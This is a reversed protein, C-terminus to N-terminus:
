SLFQQITAEHIPGWSVPQLVWTDSTQEWSMLESCGQANHDLKLVSIINFFLKWQLRFMWFRIKHRINLRVQWLIEELPRLRKWLLERMPIYFSEINEKLLKLKICKNQHNFAQHVLNLLVLLIGLFRVTVHCWLLAYESIYQFLSCISKNQDCKDRSDCKQVKSPEGPTV